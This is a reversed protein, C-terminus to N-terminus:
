KKAKEFRYVKLLCAFSLVLGAMWVASLTEPWSMLFPDDKVRAAARAIQRSSTLATQLSTKFDLREPPLSLFPRSLLIISYHYYIFLQRAYSNSPKSLEAHEFGESEEQLEEPLGNWWEHLRCTTRQIDEINTDRAHISKHFIHLVEGYIRSLTIEQTLVFEAPNRRMQNWVDEDMDNDKLTELLAQGGELTDVHDPHHRPLHNFVEPSLGPPARNNAIDSPSIRTHLEEMGPVCVDVEADHLGIPIGLAVSLYKDLIYACWFIRKRIRCVQPSLQIYRHPCRHLGTHFIVRVLTGHIVSAPRLCMMSILYMEAALMAQLSLHNPSSSLQGVLDILCSASPIKFNDNEQHKPQSAAAINSTCQIIVAQAVQDQSRPYDMDSGEAKTLVTNVLNLFNPGDLFPFRPHWYQFYINLLESLREKSPLSGLWSKGNNSSYPAKWSLGELLRSSPETSDFNIQAPTEGEFVEIPARRPVSDSSRGTDDDSHGSRGITEVQTLSAFAKFVTHTFFVGSSSGIFHSRSSSSSLSFSGTEIPPISTKSTRQNDSM